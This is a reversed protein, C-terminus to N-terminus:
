WLLLLIIGTAVYTIAKNGSGIGLKDINYVINFLHSLAPLKMIMCM